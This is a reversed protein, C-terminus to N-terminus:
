DVLYRLTEDRQFKVDDRGRRSSFFEDCDHNKRFFIKMISEMLASDNLM